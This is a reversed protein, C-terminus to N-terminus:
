IKEVKSLWSIIVQQLAIKKLLVDEMTKFTIMRRGDEYDGELVNHEDDIVNGTPFILLMVNKRLNMVVIDRKYEKPNFAKMDGNYYFSPSNWKVQEDIEPNTSLIIARVAEIIEIFAHEHKAILENIQEKDSLKSKAM